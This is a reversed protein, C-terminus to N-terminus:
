AACFGGDIVFASGNSARSEESALFVALSAVDENTAYRHMPVMELFKQKAAAPDDPALQSELAHMMRNEVPGPNIANVRIGQAGLELAATKVLGMVAHKSAVYPRLGAFGILGAVSSTAIISGGGRKALLPAGYKIALWVGRANVSLVREFDQWSTDSLPALRGEIGANAFVVDLTGFREITEAFFRRVDEESSTDAIAHAIRDSPVSRMLELLPERDLDVAMIRAGEAIFRRVTASGIGGAAGTIVAVKDDLRGM